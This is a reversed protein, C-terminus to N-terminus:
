FFFARSWQDFAKCVHTLTLRRECQFSKRKRGLRVNVRDKVSATEKTQWVDLTEKILLVPSFIIKKSKNM